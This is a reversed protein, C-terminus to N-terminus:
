SFGGSSGCGGSGGASGLSAFPSEGPASFSSMQRQVQSSACKPCSVGQDGDSSFVITEFHEGCDDCKYEYIPM